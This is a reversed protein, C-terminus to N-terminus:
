VETRRKRALVLFFLRFTVFGQRRLGPEKRIVMAAGWLGNVPKVLDGVKIKTVDAM